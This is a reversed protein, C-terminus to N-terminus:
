KQQENQPHSKDWLDNVKKYQSQIAGWDTQLSSTLQAQQDKPTSDFKDVKTTFSTVMDNLNGVEKAFDPMKVANDKARANLEDVKPQFDKLNRIFEDKPNGQVQQAAPPVPNNDSQANVYVGLTMLM